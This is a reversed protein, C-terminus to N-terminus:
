QGCAHIGHRIATPLSNNLTGPAAASVPKKRWSGAAAADLGEDRHVFGGPLALKGRYPDGGREILLIKFADDEITFLAVDVTVACLPYSM